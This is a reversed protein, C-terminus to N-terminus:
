TTLKDQRKPDEELKFTRTFGHLALRRKVKEVYASFYDGDGGPAAPKEAVGEEAGAHKPEELRWLHPYDQRRQRQKDKWLPRLHLPNTTLAALEEM